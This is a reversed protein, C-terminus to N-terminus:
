TWISYKRFKQWIETNSITKLIFTIFGGIVVAGIGSFLWAKNELIWEMM